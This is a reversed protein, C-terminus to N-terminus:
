VILGASSATLKSLAEKVPGKLLTQIHENSLSITKEDMGPTSALSAFKEILFLATNLNDM